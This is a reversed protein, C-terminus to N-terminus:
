FIMYIFDIFCFHKFFINHFLKKLHTIFQEELKVNVCEIGEIKCLTYRKKAKKM